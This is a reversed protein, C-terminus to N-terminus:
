PSTPAAPASPAESGGKEERAGSWYLEEYRTAISPRTIESLMRGRLLKPPHEMFWEVLLRNLRILRPQDWVVRGASDRWIDDFWHYRKFFLLKRRWIWWKPDFVQEVIM